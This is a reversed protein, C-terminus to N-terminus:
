KRLAPDFGLFEVIRRRNEKTPCNQNNEWKEIAAKSVGLELANALQTMSMHLDIRRKRIHEGLTKPNAPYDRSQRFHLSNPM